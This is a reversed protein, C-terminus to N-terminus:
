SSATTLALINVSHHPKIMSMDISELSEETAKRVKELGNEGPYLIQKREAPFLESMLVAGVEPLEAARKGVNLGIGYQSPSAPLPPLPKRYM